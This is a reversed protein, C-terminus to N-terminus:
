PVASSMAPFFFASVRLMIAAIWMAAVMAARRVFAHVAGGYSVIPQRWQPLHDRGQAEIGFFRQALIEQQIHIQGPADRARGLCIVGYDVFDAGTRAPQGARKQRLTCATHDRHLAIGATDGRQFLDSGCPGAFEVDDFGIGHGHILSREKM